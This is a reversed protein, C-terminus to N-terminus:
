GVEHWSYQLDINAACLEGRNDEIHNFVFPDTNKRTEKKKKQLEGSNKKRNRNTHM